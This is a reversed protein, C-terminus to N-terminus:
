QSLRFNALLFDALHRIGFEWHRLFSLFPIKAEDNQGM